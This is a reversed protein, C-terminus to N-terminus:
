ELVFVIKKNFFCSIISNRYIYNGYNIKLPIM